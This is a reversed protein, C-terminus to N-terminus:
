KNKPNIEVLRQEVLLRIEIEEIKKIDPYENLKKKCLNIAKEIVELQDYENWNVESVELSLERYLEEEKQLKEKSEPKNTYKRLL